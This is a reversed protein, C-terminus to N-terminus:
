ELIVPPTSKGYKKGTSEDLVVGTGITVEIEDERVGSKISEKEKVVAKKKGRPM